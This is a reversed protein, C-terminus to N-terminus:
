KFYNYLKTALLENGEPSFHVGETAHIVNSKKQQYAKYFDDQFEVTKLNM